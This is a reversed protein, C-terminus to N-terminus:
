KQGGRAELLFKKFRFSGLLFGYSSAVKALTIEGVHRRGRFDRGSGSGIVDKMNFEADIDLCM